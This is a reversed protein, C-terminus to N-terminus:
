KEIIFQESKHFRKKFNRLEKLFVSLDNNSKIFKLGDSSGSSVPKLVFKSFKKKILNLLNSNINECKVLEFSPTIIKFKNVIKKSKLKSFCNASFYSKFSYFM